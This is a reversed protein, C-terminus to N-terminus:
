YAKVMDRVDTFDRLASLNGVKIVPPQLGKEIQAIQKAFDSCVFKEGRRPGCHNFARTVIINLGYSHAYQLGLKDQAVKSVAYPSLPRLQNTEKIPVEHSLVLGYEESSGAITMIPNINLERISELINLESIINVNLTEQPSIWSNPVFSNAALHFIIDPKIKKLAKYVAIHDTLDVDIYFFKNLLHSINDKNAYFKDLGYIDVDQKLLYEILHSGVFGACGTCLVKKREVM